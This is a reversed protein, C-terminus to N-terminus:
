KFGVVGFFQGYFLQLLRDEHEKVQDVTNTIKEKLADNKQIETVAGQKDTVASFSEEPQILSRYLVAQGFTTTAYNVTDFLNDIELIEFTSADIVGEGVDGAKVCRIKAPQDGWSAMVTKKM